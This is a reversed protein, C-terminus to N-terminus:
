GNRDLLYRPPGDNESLQSVVRRRAILLPGTGTEPRLDDVYRGYVAHHNGNKWNHNAMFNTWSTYTGPTPGHTVNPTSMFTITGTYRALIPSLFDRIGGHGNASLGPGFEYAADSTFVKMLGDFDVRDICDAYGQVLSNVRLWTEVPVPAADDGAAEAASSAILSAAVPFALLALAGRRQVDTTM